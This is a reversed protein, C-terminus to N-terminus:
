MKRRCLLHICNTSEVFPYTWERRTAAFSLFILSSDTLSFIIFMSYCAANVADLFPDGEFPKVEFKREMVSDEEVKRKM